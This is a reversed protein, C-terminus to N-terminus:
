KQLTSAVWVTPPAVPKMSEAHDATRVNVTVPSPVAGPIGPKVPGALPDRNWWDSVKRESAEASQRLKEATAQADAAAADVDQELDAKSKANAAAVHDEAQKARAALKTLEDSAAM